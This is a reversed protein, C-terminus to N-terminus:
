RPTGGTRVVLAPRDVQRPAAQSGGIPTGHRLADQACADCMGHSVPSDDEAEDNM